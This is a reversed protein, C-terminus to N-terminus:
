TRIGRLQHTTIECMELGRVCRYLALRPYMIIPETSEGQRRYVSEGPSIHISGVCGLAEYVSYTLSSPPSADRMEVKSPTLCGWGSSSYTHMTQKLFRLTASLNRKNVPNIVWCPKKIINDNHVQLLHGTKEFPISLVGFTTLM